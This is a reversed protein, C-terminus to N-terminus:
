GKLGQLHGPLICAGAVTSYDKSVKRSPGGLFVKQKYSAYLTHDFNVTSTYIQLRYVSFSVNHNIGRLGKGKLMRAVKQLM